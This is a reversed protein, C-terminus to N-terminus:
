RTQFQWIQINQKLYPYTATGCYRYGLPFATLQRPLLPFAVNNIMQFAVAPSDLGESRVRELVFEAQAKNNLWPTLMPTAQLILAVGPVNYLGIFPAGPAIDCAMAAAKLDSIFKYTGADVKLKGINGATAMQNQQTLPLSLHYPRLCSTVIQLTITVIFCFGILSTPMKSFNEPHRAVVLVAIL